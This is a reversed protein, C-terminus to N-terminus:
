YNFIMNIVESQQWIDENAKNRMMGKRRITKSLCIKQIARDLESVTGSVMRNVSKLHLGFKWQNPDSSLNKDTELYFYIEIVDRYKDVISSMMSAHEFSSVVQNFVVLVALGTLQYFQAENLIEERCDDSDPIRVDGERMYNLILQFHKASRDVFIRGTSHPPWLSIPASNTELKTKFFGDYNQLTKETTIFPTGGINLQVIDDFHM